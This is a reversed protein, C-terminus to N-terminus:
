PGRTVGPENAKAAGDASAKEQSLGDILKMVGDAWNDRAKPNFGTQEYRVVGTRDLIWNQPISVSDHWLDRIYADALLAPFTFKKNALFPAVPGVDMDVNLTLLVADKRDKLREYLKQVEPLEERCPSCWTAWVNIFAIKGKLDNLTWRAGDLGQLGFPKLVTTSKEWGSQETAVTAAAPRSEALTATLLTWGDSTGGGQRWLAQAKEALEKRMPALASAKLLMASGDLTHGEAVALAARQEWVEAEAGHLTAAARRTDTGEARVADLQTAAADLDKRVADRRGLALEARGELVQLRALQVSDGVLIEQRVKEEPWNKSEERAKRVLEIEKEVLSPVRELELNRDLFLRAVRVYPSEGMKILNKNHEWVELVRDLDAKVAANALDKREEIAILRAFWFQFEEPCRALWETTADYYAKALAAKEREGAGEAPLPHDARWKDFVADVSQRSCPYKQALEAELHKKAEVDGTLDFGQSRAAWWGRDEVLHLGEIAKLDSAVQARLQPHQALPALRFELSWLRPYAQMQEHPRVAQVAARLGALHEQWFAPDEIANALQLTAGVQAPCLTMFREIERKMLAQDRSAHDRKNAEVVVLGRHAWPFDPAIALAKEYLKREDDANETIRAALYQAVADDPHKRARTRYEEALGAVGPDEPSGRRLLDQYTRNVFLDDPYAALLKRAADLRPRWCPQPPLCDSGWPDIAELQSRIAEAPECWANSGAAASSGGAAFLLFTFGALLLGVSAGVKRNGEM